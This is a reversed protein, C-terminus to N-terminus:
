WLLMERNWGLQGALGFSYAGTMGPLHYPPPKYMDFLAQWETVNNDGFWYFTETFLFASKM